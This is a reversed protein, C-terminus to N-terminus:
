GRASVWASLWDPFDLLSDLVVAAGSEALEAASCPGTAVAVPLADAALAGDIDAVHDGVYVQAGYTRLATAKDISWLEGVLELEWGFRALHLAANKTYKGTIVVSRGGHARVAAISEQAGPLALTAPVVVDPYGARYRTILDAIRDAPAGFRAFLHELPPGLNAAFGASDLAIGTEDALAAIVAVIGPRADILTMDLDFGITFEDM